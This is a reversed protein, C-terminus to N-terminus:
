SSNYKNIIRNMLKVVNWVLTYQGMNMIFRSIINWYKSYFYCKLYSRDKQKFAIFNLKLIIRNKNLPISGSVGHRTKNYDIINFDLIDLCSSKGSVVTKVTKNESVSLICRLCKSLGFYVNKFPSDYHYNILYNDSKKPKDPSVSIMVENWDLKKLEYEPMQNKIQNMIDNCFDDIYKRCLEDKIKNIWIHKAKDRKYGIMKLINKELYKAKSINKINKKINGHFFLQNNSSLDLM